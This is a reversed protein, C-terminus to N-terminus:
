RGRSQGASGRDVRPGTSGIGEGPSRGSGRCLADRHWAARAMFDEISGALQDANGPMMAAPILPNPYV